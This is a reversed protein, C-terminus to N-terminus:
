ENEMGQENQKLYKLTFKMIQKIRKKLEEIEKQM